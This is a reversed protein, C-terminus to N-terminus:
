KNQNINSNSARSDDLRRKIDEICSTIVESVHFKEKNLNLRQGEIRTVDLIDSTLRELREPNRTIAKIYEERAEPRM